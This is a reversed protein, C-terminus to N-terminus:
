LGCMGECEIEFGLGPRDDEDIPAISLPLCSRHVYLSQDLGRNCIAGPVRLSADIFIARQWGKPDNDRLERWERNSRFPCYVCASRPAIMGISSLFAKCDVRELMLDYLVFEPESWGCANVREKTRIIRPIEDWSLGFSQVIKTEKPVQKRPQLGLIDRRIIQNVVEVKYERTCQRQTMGGLVGEVPSTYAPISAFRQGTSHVGRSLDDGLCGVTGELIPCTDMTKLKALHEYVANPEDQTDAFCAFDFPDFRYDQGIFNEVESRHGTRHVMADMLILATSQVGAGLNLVRVVNSARAKRIARKEAAVRAKAKKPDIAERVELIFPEETITTIITAGQSAIQSRCEGRGV